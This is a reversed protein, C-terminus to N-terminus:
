VEIVTDGSTKSSRSAASSQGAVSAGGSSFASFSGRYWSRYAAPTSENALDESVPVVRIEVARLRRKVFPQSLGGAVAVAPVEGAGVDPV